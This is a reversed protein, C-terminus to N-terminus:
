KSHGRYHFNLIKPWIANIAVKEVSRQVFATAILAKRSYIGIFKQASCHYYWQSVYFYSREELSGRCYVRCHLSFKNCISCNIGRSKLIIMLSVFVYFKSRLLMSKLSTRAKRIFKEFVKSILSSHLYPFFKRIQNM